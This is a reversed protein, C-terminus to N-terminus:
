ADVAAAGALIRYQQRRQYVPLDTKLPIASYQVSTANNQAPAISIYVNLAQTGKKLSMIRSTPDQRYATNPAIYKQWGGAALVKDLTDATQAVSDPSTFITTAPSAFVEKAGSVRPLRSADFVGNDTTQSENCGGLAALCAM